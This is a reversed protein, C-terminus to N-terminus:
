SVITLQERLPPTIRLYLFEHDLPIVALQDVRVSHLFTSATWLQLRSVDVRIHFWIRARELLDRGSTASICKYGVCDNNAPLINDLKIYYDRSGIEM